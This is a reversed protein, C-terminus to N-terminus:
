SLNFTLFFSSSQEPLNKIREVRDNVRFSLENRESINKESEWSLHRASGRDDQETQLGM